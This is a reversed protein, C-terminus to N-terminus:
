SQAAEMLSDIGTLAGKWVHSVGSITRRSHVPSEYKTSAWLENPETLFRWALKDLFDKNIIKLDRIGLGGFDKGRCITSWAFNEKKFMMEGFSLETLKELDEIISGPINMAPMSYYPITTM